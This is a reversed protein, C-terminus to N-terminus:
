ICPQNNLKGFANSFTGAPCLEPEDTGEVCYRGQPCVNADSGQNPTASM